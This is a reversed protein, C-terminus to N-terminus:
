QLEVEELINSLCGTIEIEYLSKHFTGDYTSIKVTWGAKKYLFEIVEVDRALMYEKIKAAYYQTDPFVVSETRENIPYELQKEIKDIFFQIRKNNIEEQKVLLNTYMM